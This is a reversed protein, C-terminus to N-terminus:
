AARARQAPQHLSPGPPARHEPPRTIIDGRQNRTVHWGGEHANHHHRNCLWALNDISTPGGDDWPLLHHAQCWTAPTTCDGWECTTSRALMARRQATTALRRARGVDLPQSNGDLVTPIIDAECALRRATSADIPTGNTLTAIGNAALRGLLDDLSILVNILPRATERNAIGAGAARRAMEVLADALRQRATTALRDPPPLQDGHEARWLEDAIAWLTDHVIAHEAAPLEAHIFGVGSAPDTGSAARRSSHTATEAAPGTQDAAEPSTAAPCGADADPTAADTARDAPHDTPDPRRSLVWRRIRRAFREPDLRTAWALFRDAETTIAELGADQAARVLSRVHESTITGLQLARTSTPFNRSSRPPKSAHGRPSRHRTPTHPSGPQPTPMAPM